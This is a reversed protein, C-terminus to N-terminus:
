VLFSGKLPPKYACWGLRPAPRDLGLRRKLTKKHASGVTSIANAILGHGPRSDLFGPASVSLGACIAKHLPSDPVRCFTQHPKYRQRHPDYPRPLLIAGEHPVPAMPM